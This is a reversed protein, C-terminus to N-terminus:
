RVPLSPAAARVQVGRAEPRLHPLSCPGDLCDAHPDVQQRVGYPFERFEAQRIFQGGDRQGRVQQAVAVPRAFRYPLLCEAERGSVAPRLVGHVAASQVQHQQRRYVFAEPRLADAGAQQEMKPM